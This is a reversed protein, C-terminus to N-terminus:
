KRFSGRAGGPRRGTAGNARAKAASARHRRQLNQKFLHARRAKKENHTLPRDPAGPEGRKAAPGFGCEQAERARKQANKGRQITM